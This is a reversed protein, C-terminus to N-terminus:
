FFFSIKDKLKSNKMISVIYNLKTYFCHAINVLQVSTTVVKQILTTVRRETKYLVMVSLVWRPRRYGGIARWPELIIEHVWLRMVESPGIPAWRLGYSVMPPWAHGLNTKDTQYKIHLDKIKQFFFLRSLLITKLYNCFM